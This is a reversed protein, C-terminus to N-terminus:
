ARLFRWFPEVLFRGAGIRRGSREAAAVTTLHNVSRLHDSIDRYTYHLIPAELWRVTGSVLAREHPDTGGWRTTTRRVLRVVRRERPLGRDDGGRGARDRRLVRAAASRDRRRPAGRGKAGGGPRGRAGMRPARGVRRRRRPLRRSLASPRERVGAARADARAADPEERAPPTRSAAHDAGARPRSARLAD